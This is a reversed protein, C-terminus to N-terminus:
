PASIDVVWLRDPGDLYFRRGDVMVVVRSARPDATTTVVLRQLSAGRLGTARMLRAVRKRATRIGQEDALETHTMPSGYVGRSCCPIAEIKGTLWLDM